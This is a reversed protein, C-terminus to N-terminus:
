STPRSVARRYTSAAWAAPSCRVSPISTRSSPSIPVTISPPAGPGGLRVRTRRPGAAPTRPGSEPTPRRHPVMWRQRDGLDLGQQGVLATQRSYRVNCRNAVSRHPKPRLSVVTRTTSPSGPLSHLDVEAEQAIQRIRLGTPAAFACANIMVATYERCMNTHSVYECVRDPTIAPQAAAHVKKPPTKVQICRHASETLASETAPCLAPQPCLHDGPRM